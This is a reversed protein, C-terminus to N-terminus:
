NLELLTAQSPQLIRMELIPIIFLVSMASYFNKKKKKAFILAFHRPFWLHGNVDLEKEGVQMRSLIRYLITVM